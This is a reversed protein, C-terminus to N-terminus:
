GFLEATVRAAVTRPVITPLGTLKVIEEKMKCTYGICDMVVVQAGREKLKLAAQTVTAPDGYPSAAEIVIGRVGNEQWRRTAQPVQSIDPTLVGIIRDAVAGLTFHQLLRQPYLIPKSCRFAPFEGTCLLLIGEAGKSVLDDIHMQMRQLIFKKAIRVSSGDRLRTVLVYDGPEPAMAAIKEASLGDLAGRQELEVAGLLGLIEHVVDDRPSQGVTIAGIKVAM